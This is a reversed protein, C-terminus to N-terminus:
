NFFFFGRGVTPYEPHISKCTPNCMYLYHAIHLRTRYYRWDVAHIIDAKPTYRRVFALSSAHMLIIIIGAHTYFIKARPFNTRSSRGCKPPLGGSIVRYIYIYIYIYITSLRGRTAHTGITPRISAAPDTALLLLQRATEGRAAIHLLVPFRSNDRSQATSRTRCM